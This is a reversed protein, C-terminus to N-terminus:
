GFFPFWFTLCRPRKEWLYMYEYMYWDAFGTLLGHSLSTKYPVAVECPYWNYLSCIRRILGQYPLYGYHRLWQWNLIVLLFHSYMICRHVCMRPANWLSKGPDEPKTKWLFMARVFFICTASLTIFCLPRVTIKGTDVPLPTM